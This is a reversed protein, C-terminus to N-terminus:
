VCVVISLLAVIGLACFCRGGRPSRAQPAPRMASGALVYSRVPVTPNLRPKATGGCTATNSVCAREIGPVSITDGLGISSIQPYPFAVPGPPPPVLELLARLETKTLSLRARPSRRGHGGSSISNLCRRIPSNLAWRRPAHLLARLRGGSLGLARVAQGLTDPQYPPPHLTNTLRAPTEAWPSVIPSWIGGRDADPYPHRRWAGQHCPV